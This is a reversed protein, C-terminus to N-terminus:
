FTLVMMVLLSHYQLLTTIDFIILLNYTYCLVIYRLACMTTVIEPLVPKSSDPLKQTWM